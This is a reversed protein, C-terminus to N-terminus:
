WCPKRQQASAFYRNRQPASPRVRLLPPTCCRQQPGIARGGRTASSPPTSYAWAGHTVRARRTARAATSLTSASTAAQSLFTSAQVTSLSQPLPLTQREPVQATPPEFSSPPTSPAPAHTLGPPSQEFSTSHQVAGQRLVRHPPAVPPELPLDLPDLPDFPDLPDLPELPLV